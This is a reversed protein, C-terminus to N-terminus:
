KVKGAPRNTSRVPTKKKTTSTKTAASTKGFMTQSSAISSEIQEVLKKGKSPKLRRHFLTLSVTNFKKKVFAVFSSNRDKELLKKSENFKAIFAAYKIQPSEYKDSYVVTNLDDIAQKKANILRRENKTRKYLPNKNILQQLHARYENFLKSMNLLHKEEPSLFLNGSEINKSDLHQVLAIRKNIPLDTLADADKAIHKIDDSIINTLEEWVNLPLVKLIINLDNANKIIERMNNSPLMQIIDLRVDSPYIIYEPRPFLALINALHTATKIVVIFQKLSLKIFKLHHKKPLLDLISILESTSEYFVERKRGYLKIFRFRDRKAIGTLLDTFPTDNLEDLTKGKLLPFLLAQKRPALHSFIGIACKASLKDCRSKIFEKFDGDSLNNLVSRLPTLNSFLISIDEDSCSNLFDLRDKKPLRSIIEAILKPFIKNEIKPRIVNIILLIEDLSFNKKQQIFSFLIKKPLKEINDFYLGIAEIADNLDLNKLLKGIDNIDLILKRDACIKQFWKLFEMHMKGSLGGTIALVFDIMEQKNKQSSIVKNGYAKILKMQDKSPLLQLVLIFLKPELCLALLIYNAHRNLLYIFNFREERQLQRLLWALNRVDSLLENINAILDADISAEIEDASLQSFRAALQKLKKLQQKSPHYNEDDTESASEHSSENSHSEPTDQEPNPTKAAIKKAYEATKIYADYGSRKKGDLLIDKAAGIQKFYEAAEASPNKDPHYQKSLIHYQKKIIDATADPKVKLIQYYTKKCERYVRVANDRDALNFM